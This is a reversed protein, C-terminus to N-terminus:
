SLSKIFRWLEIAAKTRAGHRYNGNRKGEPAGARAGHFRCVTWGNLAQCPCGRWRGINKAPFFYSGIRRWNQFNESGSVRMEAPTPLILSWTVTIEIVCRGRKV